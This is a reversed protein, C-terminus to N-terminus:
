RTKLPLCIWLLGNKQEATAKEIDVEAPLELTRQFHGYDIEMAITQLARGDKDRPEPVARTGQISLRRPEIELNIESRDLGALEVCIRLCTACRYANISPRWAHAAFQTVRVRTLHYTLEDVPGHLWRMRITRIPKMRIFLKSTALATKL